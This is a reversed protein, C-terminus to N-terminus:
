FRGIFVCLFRALLFTWDPCLETQYNWKKGFYNGMEFSKRWVVSRNDLSLHQIPKWLGKCVLVRSWIPFPFLYCLSASFIVDSRDIAHMRDSFYSMPISPSYFFINKQRDGIFKNASIDFFFGARKGLMSGTEIWIVCTSQDRCSSVLWIMQFKDRSARMERLLPVKPNGLLNSPTRVM